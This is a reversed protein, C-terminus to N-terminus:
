EMEGNCKRAMVYRGIESDRIAELVCEHLYVKDKDGVYGNTLLLEIKTCISDLTNAKGIYEAVRRAQEKPIYTAPNWSRASLNRFSVTATFPANSNATVGPIRIDGIANMLDGKLNELLELCQRELIAIEELKGSLTAANNM